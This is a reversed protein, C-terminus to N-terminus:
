PWPRGARNFRCAGGFCECQAISLAGWGSSLVSRSFSGLTPPAVGALGGGASDQRPVSAIAAALACHWADTEVGPEVWLFVGNMAFVHCRCARWQLLLASALWRRRGGAFSANADATARHAAERLFSAPLESLYLLFQRALSDDSRGEGLARGAAIERLRPGRLGPWVRPAHNLLAGGLFARWYAAWLAFYFPRCAAPPAKRASQPCFDFYQSVISLFSQPRKAPPKAPAGRARECRARQLNAKHARETSSRCAPKIAQLRGDASVGVRGRVERWHKGEAQLSGRCRARSEARKCAVCDAGLGAGRRGDCPAKASFGGSAICLGIRGTSRGPCGECGRYDASGDRMGEAHLRISPRADRLEPSARARAPWEAPGMALVLPRRARVRPRLAGPWARACASATPARGAASHSLACLALYIARRRSLRWVVILGGRSSGSRAQRARSSFVIALEFSRPM